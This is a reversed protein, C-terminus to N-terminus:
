ERRLMGKAVVVVLYIVMRQQSILNAVTSCVRCYLKGQLPMTTRDQGFVELRSAGEVQSDVRAGRSM